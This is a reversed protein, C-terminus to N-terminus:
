YNNGIDIGGTYPVTASHVINDRYLTHTLKDVVEVGYRTGYIRNNVISVGSSNRVKIGRVSLASASSKGQMINNEINCFQCGQLSVIDACGDVKELNNDTFVVRYGSLSVGIHRTSTSCSYDGALYPNTHIRNNRIVVQSGRSSIAFGAINSFQVDEVLFGESALNSVGLIAGWMFGDIKGNRISINKGYYEQAEIARSNRFTTIITGGAYPGSLTYGNLDIVVDSATIDIAATDTASPYNLNGTLCYNGSTSITTPVSTIPTCDAAYSAVSFVALSVMLLPKITKM